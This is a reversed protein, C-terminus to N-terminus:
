KTVTITLFGQIDAPQPTGGFTQRRRADLSNAMNRLVATVTQIGSSAYEAAM